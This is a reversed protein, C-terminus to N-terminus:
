ELTLDPGKVPFKNPARTVASAPIPEVDFRVESRSANRHIWDPVPLFPPGSKAIARLESWVNDLRTVPGIRKRM